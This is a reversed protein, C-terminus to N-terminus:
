MLCYAKYCDYFEKFRSADAMINLTDYHGMLEREMDKVINHYNRRQYVSPEGFVIFPNKNENRQQLVIGGWIDDMRDAQAIVTYDPIVSRCLFTNQSNFVTVGECTYPFSGTIKESPHNNTLRCIADVDPEGDWLDAQVLPVMSVRGVFKNNLRSSLLQIPYGRHWMHRMSTVSLPDFFGKENAYCDVEVKRGVLLNEGWNEYPINDDDVTAIIDAGDRYAEVLGINRRQICNWGILDSLDKYKDEQYKPELYHAPFDRYAEHPTKLDGVIYLRWDKKAAFKVLAETPPNITTTVIAKM